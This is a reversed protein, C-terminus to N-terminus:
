TSFVLYQQFFKTQYLNTRDPLDIKSVLGFTRYVIKLKAMVATTVGSETKNTSFGLVFGHGEVLLTCTYLVFIYIDSIFSVISQM